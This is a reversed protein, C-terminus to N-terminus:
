TKQGLKAWELIKARYKRRKEKYFGNKIKEQTGPMFSVVRMELLRQVSELVTGFDPIQSETGEDLPIPDLISMPVGVEVKAVHLTPNDTFTVVLTKCPGQPNWLEMEEATTERLSAQYAYPLEEVQIILAKENETM